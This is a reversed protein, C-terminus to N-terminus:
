NTLTAPQSETPQPNSDWRKGWCFAETTSNTSVVSEFDTAALYTPELGVPPVM